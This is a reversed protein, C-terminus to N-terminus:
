SYINVLWQQVLSLRAAKMAIGIEIGKLGQAQFQQATIAKLQKSIALWDQKLQSGNPNILPNNQLLKLLADFLGGQKFVGSKELLQLCCEASQKKPTILTEFHNQVLLAFQRYQIPTKLRDCLQNIEPESLDKLLLGWRCLSLDQDTEVSIILRLAQPTDQPNAQCNLGKIQNNLLNCLEPMWETLAQTQLLSLFYQEPHPETLARETERWVREASLYRLEGTNALQTMLALTEDAIKFGLHYFRALFRAGRLVRLPDESFADSVHRLIRHQLDHQGQYPDVLVGTKSKAMANITFDRRQLDEELTVNPSTFCVFGQYGHGQKRETRALAYEEKTKPHLFVPFDRGVQIFGASLMQEPTAGVVVWDNDHAEIGLLEDRVPGGVLYVQGVDPM